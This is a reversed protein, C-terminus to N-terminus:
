EINYSSHTDQWHYYQFDNPLSKWINNWYDTINGFTSGYVCIPTFWINPVAFLQFGLDTMSNNDSVTIQIYVKDITNDYIRVNHSEFIVEISPLIELTSGYVCILHFWIFPVLFPRFELQTISKNNSVAFQIHTKNIIIDSITVYHSQYIIETRTINGFTTGYVCILIFWSTPVLFLEFGM